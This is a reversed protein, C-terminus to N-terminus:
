KKQVGAAIAFAPLGDKNMQKVEQIVPTRTFHENSECVVLLVPGKNEWASLYRRVQGVARDRESSSNLNRKLEIVVSKGILIDFRGKLDASIYFPHETSIDMSVKKKLHRVLARQYGSELHHKRPKWTCLAAVIETLGENGTDAASRMSEEKLRVCDLVPSVTLLEQLAIKIQRGHRALLWRLGRAVLSLLLLVAVIDSHKSGVIRCYLYYPPATISLVNAALEATERKKNKEDDRWSEYVLVASKALDQTKRGVSKFVELWQNKEGERSAVRGLFFVATLVFIIFLMVMDLVSWGTQGTHKYLAYFFASCMIAITLLITRRGHALTDIKLGTAYLWQVFKASAKAATVAYKGAVSAHKKATNLREDLTEERNSPRVGDDEADSNPTILHHSPLAAISPTVAHIQDTSADDDLQLCASPPPSTIPVFALKVRDAEQERDNDAVADLTTREDILHELRLKSHCRPCRITVKLDDTSVRLKQACEPCFLKQHRTSESM